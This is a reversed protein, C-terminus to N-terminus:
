IYKNQKTESLSRWFKKIIKIHNQLEDEDVKSNKKYNDLKKLPRLNRWNFCIYLEDENTLDYTCCPCVHDITWYSGYNDFTMKKDFQFQLWKKFNHYNCGIIGEIVDNKGSKIFDNLHTRLRTSIFFGFDTARRARRTQTQRKQIETRNNKNYEHNYVSIEDKHEQKYEKNYKSIHKKNRAKYARSMANDCKKCSPRIKGGKCKYFDTIPKINQGTPCKSCKKMPIKTTKSGSM